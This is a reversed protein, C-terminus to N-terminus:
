ALSELQVGAAELQARVDRALEAAGPSDGHLCLSRPEILWPLRDTDFVVGNTALDIAQELAAAHDLLAGPKERGVLAPRKASVGPGVPAYARDIFAEAITVQNWGKAVALLKSGPSGLIKLNPDAEGAASCVVEATTRDMSSRHYLAGHPKVYSVRTGVEAAIAMLELIQAHLSDYLAQPELEIVTRGFGERDPYSPHAGIAVGRALAATCTARMTGADGAHGGCAVNASTVADLLAEDHGSGEGLDANLDISTPAAAM